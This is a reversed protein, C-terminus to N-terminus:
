IAGVQVNSPAVAITAGSSHFRATLVQRPARAIAV